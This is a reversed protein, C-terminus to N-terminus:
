PEEGLAALLARMQAPTLAAGTALVPLQAPWGRRTADELGFRLKAVAARLDRGPEPEGPRPPGSM